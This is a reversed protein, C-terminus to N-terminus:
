FTKIKESIKQSFGDLPILGIKEPPNVGVGLEVARKIQELEFIKGKMVERTSGYLRLIAVGVADIAVRDKSALILAPKVIEGREPGGKIFAKEADMVIYFGNIEAIMLRQFPSSHLGAMYNYLSKPLQKAILGVSNKLSM